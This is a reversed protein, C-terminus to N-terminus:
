LELELSGTRDTDQGLTELVAPTYVADHGAKIHARLLLHKVLQFMEGAGVDKAEKNNQSTSSFM